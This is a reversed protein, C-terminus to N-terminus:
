GGLLGRDMGQPARSRGPAQQQTPSNLHKHPLVGVGGQRRRRKGQPAQSQDPAQQQTPLNPIEPLVGVGGQRRRLKGQPAQSQDPAQQQTPLKPHQTFPNQVVSICLCLSALSSEERHRQPQNRPYILPAFRLSPVTARRSSSPPPTPPPNSSPCSPLFHHSIFTAWSCEM